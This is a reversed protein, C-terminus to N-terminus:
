YDPNLRSSFVVHQELPPLQKELDPAIKDIIAQFLVRDELQPVSGPRLFFGRKPVWIKRLSKFSYTGQKISEKLYNVNDEFFYEFISLEVPFQLFDYQADYKVRRFATIFDLEDIIKKLEQSSM